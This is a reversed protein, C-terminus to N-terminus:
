LFGARKFANERAPYEPSERATVDLFLTGLIIGADCAESDSAADLTHGSTNDVPGSTNHAVGHGPVQTPRHVRSRVLIKQVDSHWTQGPPMPVQTLTVGFVRDLVEGIGRMVKSLPLYERIDIGSAGNAKDGEASLRARSRVQDSYLLKDWAEFRGSGCHSHAHSDSPLGGELEQKLAAMEGTEAEAKKLLGEGLTHLMARAAEPTQAMKGCMSLHAFSPFKLELALAHRALLLRELTRVRGTLGHEATYAAKRVEEIPVGNLISHYMARTLTLKAVGGGKGGEIWTMDQQIKASLTRAVEARLQITSLPSSGNVFEFSLHGIEEQLAMVRKRGQEDLHVGGREFDSKLLEAVRRAEGELVDEKSGGADAYLRM